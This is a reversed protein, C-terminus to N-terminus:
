IAVYADDGVVDSMEAMAVAGDVDGDSSGGVGGLFGRSPWIGVFVLSRGVLPGISVSPQVSLRVPVVSGFQHLRLTGTSARFSWSTLNQMLAPLQQTPQPKNLPCGLLEDM